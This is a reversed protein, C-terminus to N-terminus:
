TLLHEPNTSADLMAFFVQVIKPDFYSGAAREIIQRAQEPAVAKRYSRDSLLADWADIVAFIRAPLPIEEEKLGSPYGSGDWREHHYGPVILAPKLFAIEQLMRLAFGPHQQMVQWEEPTLPGPKLLISDPIAMKGIDHLLAGRRLNEMETENVGIARALQVTLDAVRQSHGTTEHDRLDLARVWGELTRDYTAILDEQSQLLHKVMENFRQTLQSVEDGGHPQVQVLLNGGAVQNAARELELIPNSIRNSVIFGIVLVLLLALLVALLMQLWTAQSVRVLFNKAFAVGILGINTQRAQWVGIIERYSVDVTDLDRSFSAASEPASLQTARNADLSPTPLMTTALVKGSSDYLTVQALTAERIQRAMTVLSKGILVVGVLNGQEDTIPGAVYFFDDQNIKIIGSFKDGASDSHKQLVQVVISQQKFFDDGRSFAYDEISGGARHRMSLLTTGQLDLIEVAEEQANVAIPLLTTRLKEANNAQIIEAIGNTHSILRLTELMRNEEGVMWEASIKGAEILQNVFREEISDFTVRIGILAAGTALALAVLLYPLIIKTRLTLPHNSFLRM